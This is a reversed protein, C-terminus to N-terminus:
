RHLNACSNFSHETFSYKTGRKIINFNIQLIIMFPLSTHFAILIRPDTKSQSTSFHTAKRSAIGLWNKQTPGIKPKEYSPGM